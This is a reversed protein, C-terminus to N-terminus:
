GLNVREWSDENQSPPIGNERASSQSKKSTVAYFPSVQQEVMHSGCHPCGITEKDQRAILVRSFTKKCAHCYYDHYPM